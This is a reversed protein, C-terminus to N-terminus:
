KLGIPSARGNRFVSLSTASAVLLELREDAKGSTGVVTSAPKGLESYSTQIPM